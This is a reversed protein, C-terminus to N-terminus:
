VARPAFVCFENGEVDALVDWSIEDDHARLLTSGAALLDSVRPCDEPAPVDDPM